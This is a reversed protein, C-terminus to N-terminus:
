SGDTEFASRPARHRPQQPRSRPVPPSPTQATVEDTGVTIAQDFHLLKLPEDGSYRYTTEPASVDLRLTEGHVRIGFGLRTLRPPLRPAFRLGDATDRMGGFGAVIVTWVGALAAVHLGEHTNGHADDLDITAVEALYDYALELQHVEAAIVAQPAASLSSDRVTLAEYYEFNRIKQEPTFAEHAFHMALVLDAQKLVQKRYLDFYPFHDHLLYQDIGTADFDWRELQTYGASQPHIGLDADFPIHMAAATATWEDIEDAGVGLDECREPHRRAADAAARLNLQAMLNTFVNDNAIASYEDPGTVGDIHFTGDADRRGLSVWLRATEVLIELGYEREFEVDGTARVYHLVAAAIDANIHFAATSAPWYGSSERGDITRWAFAAGALHLQAARDRAHPLTSHRWLLAQRAADPATSTLVPLVFAEFDWFTHGEYGAGTLGKGPVSRLEARAASQFVQFLAYRVAQQLRPEGEVIVDACRWYDDLVERQEALLRDWGDAMAATVATEARARVTASARSEEFDHGVYKVIVLREGPDLRARITTRAGDDEAETVLRYGPADVEHDMTTAVALGSRRTRHLLTARSGVADTEVTVLPRTLLDQVRPDDHEVPVPENALLESIVTIDVAHEVAEVSYRVAAIARRSLSVVRTSEVRVRRGTPSTWEFSRHLTGDRLDLRRDHSSLEGTEIDFPEDDVLMRIIQGNQVNIVSQGVEPYGYADEAYPMPHEEFVGNLYSGAVGRPDGEDLNGRWGLHGNSLGFVSEEHALSEPRVDSISVTWPDVDFRAKTM